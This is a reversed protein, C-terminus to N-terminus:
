YRMTVNKGNMRRTVLCPKKEVRKAKEPAKWQVKRSRLELYVTELDAAPVTGRSIGCDSNPVVVRKEATERELERETASEEQMEEERIDQMEKEEPPDEIRRTFREVSVDSQNRQNAIHPERRVYQVRRVWNEYSQAYAVPGSDTPM